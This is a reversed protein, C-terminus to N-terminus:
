RAAASAPRRRPPVLGRPSSSALVTALFSAFFPTVTAVILAICPPSAAPKRAKISSSSFNSATATICTHLQRFLWGGSAAGAPAPKPAPQPSSRSVISNFPMFFFPPVRHRTVPTCGNVGDHVDSWRRDPPREPPLDSAVMSGRPSDLPDLTGFLGVTDDALMELTLAARHSRPFVRSTM